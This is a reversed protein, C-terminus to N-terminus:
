FEALLARKRQAYWRSLCRRDDGCSQRSAEAQAMRRQFGGPDDTVAGAQAALRRLDSDLQALDGELAPGRPSPAGMVAEPARTAVQAAGEDSSLQESREAALRTKSATDGLVARYGETSSAMLQRARVLLESRLEEQATAAAGAYHLALDAEADALPVSPAPAAAAALRCAAIFAVEADRPRGQGAAERGAQTFAPPAPAQAQGMVARLRYQGDVEGQVPIAPEFGCAQVPMGLQEGTPAPAATPEAPAPAPDAPAAALQQAQPRGAPEPAEPRNLLWVAGLAVLGGVLLGATFHSSRERTSDM